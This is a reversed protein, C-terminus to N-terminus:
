AMQEGDPPPQHGLSEAPGPRPDLLARKDEVTRYKEADFLPGKTDTINPWVRSLQANLEQYAAWKPPLEDEPYIANVPCMPVCAGCDICEEPKIALMNAGEYFCDVPCVSVCETYRCKVCPEAVVHPM